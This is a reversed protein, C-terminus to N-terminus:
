LPFGFPRGAPDRLLTERATSASSSPSASAIVWVAILSAFPPSVTAKRRQRSRM